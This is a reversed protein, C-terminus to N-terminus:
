FLGVDVFPAWFYPTAYGSKSRIAEVKASRLAHAPSEGNRLHRHFSEMFDSTFSDDVRWLSVVVRSSGAFLFARTLGLMGEGKVLKGLGTECASLVVLDANLHLRFIEPVTLLSDSFSGNSSLAIGSKAPNRDDSFGHSAVHIISYSRLEDKRFISKEAKESLFVSRDQEPYLRAIKQIETRSNPLRSFHMGGREYISRVAAGSSGSQTPGFTPDGLALLKGQVVAPAKRIKAFVAVSPAYAIEHDEILLRREPTRLVEFPLYYLSGAPVVLLKAHAKLKAPGLLMTYLREALGFYGNLGVASGPRKAVQARIQAVLLDISRAPPLDWMSLSSATILFGASRNEGLFFEVIDCGTRSALAQADGATLPLGTELSGARPGRLMDLFARARSREAYEFATQDYMGSLHLRRLAALAELAIEFVRSKERLFSVREDSAGISGRMDEIADVADRAYQWAKEPDHRRLELEALARQADSVIPRMNARSGMEVARQLTKSAEAFLGAELEREGVSEVAEALFPMSGIKRAIVEAEQARRVASAYQGLASEAQALRLNVKVDFAEFRVDSSLNAAALLYQRARKLDRARFYVDGLDALVRQQEGRDHQTRASQLSRRMYAIADEFDGMAFYVDAVDGLAAGKQWPKNLRTFIEVSKRAADLADVYRGLRLNFASVDGLTFAEGTLDGSRDRGEATEKAMGLAEDIRGSEAYVRVLYARDTNPDGGPTDLDRELLRQFIAIAMEYNGAAEYCNGKARLAPSEWWSYGAAAALSLVSQITRMGDNMSMSKCEFEAAGLLTRFRGDNVGLKQYLEVAEVEEDSASGGTRCRAYDAGLREHVKAQLLLSHESEAMLLAEQDLALTQACTGRGSYFAALALRASATRVPKILELAKTSTLETLRTICEAAASSHEVCDLYFPVAERGRSLEDLARAIGCSALANSPNTRKIKRFYVEEDKAQGAKYFAGILEIYAPEFQPDKEISAELYRIAEQWNGQGLKRWGEQYDEIASGCQAPWQCCAFGILLILVVRM